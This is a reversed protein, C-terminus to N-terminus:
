SYPPHYQTPIAKKMKKKNYVHEKFLPSGLDLFLDM